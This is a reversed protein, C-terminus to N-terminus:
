NLVISSKYIDIGKFITVMQYYHLEIHLSIMVNLIFSKLCSKSLFQYIKKSLYFYRQSSPCISIYIKPDMIM